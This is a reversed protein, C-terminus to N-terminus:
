PARIELQVDGWANPIILALPCHFAIAMASHLVTGILKHTASIGKLVNWEISGHCAAFCRM